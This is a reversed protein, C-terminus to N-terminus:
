AVETGVLVSSLKAEVPRTVNVDSSGTIEFAVIEVVNGISVDGPLVPPLSGKKLSAV